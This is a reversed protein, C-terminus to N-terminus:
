WRSPASRRGNGVCTPIFRSRHRRRGHGRETGWVRPSSGLSRIVGAQKEPREGCVHPHVPSRMSRWRARPGNGVCTPIFRHIRRPVRRQGDTGWVRPSSGSMLAGSSRSFAREGCVHPHVSARASRRHRPGGNGVCTPIFRGHGKRRRDGDVTGWVRPSSGGVLGGHLRRQHREGCVHPHVPSFIAASAGACGNGVCTPIFRALYYTGEEIQDTGWVRPSSGGADRHDRKARM